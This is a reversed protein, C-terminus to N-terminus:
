TAFIGNCGKLMSYNLHDILFTSKQLEEQRNKPKLYDQWTMESLLIEWQINWLDLHAHM